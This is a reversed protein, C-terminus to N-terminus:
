SRLNMSIFRRYGSYLDRIVLCGTAGFVVFAVLLGEENLLQSIRGGFGYMLVGWFCHWLSSAVILRVIFERYSLGRSGVRYCLVGTLNPHWSAIFFPIWRGGNSDKSWELNRGGLLRGLYFNVHQAGLAPVLICLFVAVARGPQGSTASMGALILISFPTYPGSPVLNECVSMGAVTVLVIGIRSESFYDSVRGAWAEPEPLLGVTSLVRLIGLLALLILSAKAHLVAALVATGKM